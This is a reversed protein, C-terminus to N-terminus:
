ISLGSRQKVAGVDATDITGTLDVDHAFNASSVAGARGKTRLIDSATVARSGDVDGALFGVSASVNTAANNVNALAIKARRADLSGTLTVEVANGAAAASASGIPTGVEDVCSVSGPYWIPANFTFVIKHGAGIARPEMSVAGGIPQSADIALTFTSAGHSKSSVVGVLVPAPVPAVAFGGSAVIGFQMPASGAEHAGVDPAAGLFSDNFNAIPVAQDHGPTGSALAYMGGAESVAGNGPQYTPAANIGNTVPAGAPGNFMDREFENGSAAVQFYASRTDKWVHYINNKSFTNQVLQTDGTGGIGNGGGQPFTSGPPPDAQLMTNHFFYRRGYGLTADSGAKFFPQRDDLDPNTLNEYFRNRNWVNRFVYAPGISTVTTAIGTATREIYNGWIRANRNGGESEIADDWAHSLENGYIDSDTNPFGTTSFNDEGGIIDNYYRGTTSFIENHRIVHNGGCFSFTIAQPGAPHGDSWSNAGFRPDHIENRQITVRELTRTSCVARIASDLDIGWATDARQRGWGSIENDEIIVDAVNANSALLIAHQQAGRLVFGRLIVFSANIVVNNPLLNGVDLVAGSPVAQYVVYGEAASGSETIDLTANGALVPITKKVPKQNAWTKFAVTKTQPHGPVSLEAEYDTGPTVGVISGRCENNRADFWMLLGSTWAVDVVKRFRIACGGAASGPPNAWYFGAAEYTPVARPNATQARGECAWALALCALLFSVKVQNGPTSMGAEGGGRGHPSGM